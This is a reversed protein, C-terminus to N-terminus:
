RDRRRLLARRRDRTLVRRRWAELRARAPADLSFADAVIADLEAQATEDIGDQACRVREGFRALSAVVHRDSPAPIARLHGIKLQPIGQRADRHRVYHLWRVPTSNLYAVLFPAPFDDSAFAALISNRFAGGDSLAAIPYRATQRLVIAVEGWRRELRRGFWAASAFFSPAGLRFATVDGGARLPIAHEDDAVRRLHAVDDGSTQLGREGFTSAPLQAGVLRALLARDDADLDPREVSWREDGPEVPRARRTSALIMCPQFVGVFAGDGLDRLEDDCRALGDHARRVPAYGDQEAMSSPVLLGLRGGDRLLSACREVFLGQLNRFGAFSAYARGYWARRAAELPQAARGAWSVWPPNGVFADFGGRALVEPFEADWHFAPLSPAGLTPRGVLADGHRLARDVFSPAVDGSGVALWVSTRAVAVALASQDVGFLCHEAVARRARSPAALGRSRADGARTWAALLREALYDCAALLIAGSGMAPDCVSLAVIRNEDPAEGLLPALTTGVIADALARPTYHAGAKRRGDTSAIALAGGGDRVIALGTAVEHVDGLLTAPAVPADGRLSSLIATVVERPPERDGVAIPPAPWAEDDFLGGRSSRLPPSMGAEHALERALLRLLAVVLWLGGDAVAGERDLGRSEYSRLLLELVAAPRPAPPDTTARRREAVM